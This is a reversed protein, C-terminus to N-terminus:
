CLRKDNYFLSEILCKIINLYKQQLSETSLYKLMLTTPDVPIPDWLWCVVLCAWLLGGTSSQGCFRVMIDCYYSVSKIIFGYVWKAKVNCSDDYFMLMLTFM